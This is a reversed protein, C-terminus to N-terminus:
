VSIVEKLEPIERKLMNEIGAKLTMVSSPCSSCSGQLHLRLVGDEYSDFIIDGGDSAVAPRIQNDLIELIRQEIENSSTVKKSETKLVVPEGSEFHQNIAELLRDYISEWTSDAKKSVTIFNKGIFVEEVSPINFLRKALPSDESKEKNPFNCSGNELINKDLVFKLANPNPTGETQIKVKNIHDM